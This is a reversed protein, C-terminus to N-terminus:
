ICGMVHDLWAFGKLDLHDVLSFFPILKVTQSIDVQGYVLELDLIERSRDHLLRQLRRRDGAKKYGACQFWFSHATGKCKMTPLPKVSCQYSLFIRSAHWLYVAATYLKKKVVCIMCKLFQIVWYGVQSRKHWCNAWMVLCCKWFATFSNTKPLM